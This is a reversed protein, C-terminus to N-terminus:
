KDETGGVRWGTRELWNDFTTAKVGLDQFTAGTCTTGPKIANIHSLLCCRLSADARTCPLTSSRLVSQVWDEVEKAFEPGGMEPDTRVSDLYEEVALPEFKAPEGTVTQYQKAMDVPTLVDDM